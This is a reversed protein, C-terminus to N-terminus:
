ACQGRFLFGDLNKGTVMVKALNSAFVGHV